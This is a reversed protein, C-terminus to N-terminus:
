GPGSPSATCPSPRGQCHHLAPSPLSPCSSSNVGSLAVSSPSAWTPLGGFYTRFSGPAAPPAQPLGESLLAWLRLGPPDEVSYGGALSYLIYTLGRASLGQCQSGKGMLEAGLPGHRPGGLTWQSIPSSHNGLCRWSRTGCQGSAM